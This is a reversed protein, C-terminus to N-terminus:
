RIQDSFIRAEMETIRGDRNTDCRRVAENFALNQGRVVKREHDLLIPLNVRTQSEHQHGRDPLRSLTEYFTRAALDTEFEVALREEDRYVTEKTQICGAAALLLAVLIARPTIM